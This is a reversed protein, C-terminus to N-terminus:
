LKLFKTLFEIIKWCKEDNKLFKLVVRIEVNVWVSAFDFYTKGLFLIFYDKQLKLLGM